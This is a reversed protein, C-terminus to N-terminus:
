ADEVELETGFMISLDKVMSSPIEGINARTLILINDRCAPNDEIAKKIGMRNGQKLMKIVEEDSIMVVKNEVPYFIEGVETEFQKVPEVVFKGAKYAAELVPDTFIGLAFTRPVRVKKSNYPIHVRRPQSTMDYAPLNLTLSGKTKKIIDYFGINEAM